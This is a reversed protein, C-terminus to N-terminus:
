GLLKIKHFIIEDIPDIIEVNLIMIKIYQIQFLINKFFFNIKLNFKFLEM